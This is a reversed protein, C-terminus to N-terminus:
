VKRKQQSEGVLKALDIIDTDDAYKGNILAKLKALHETKDADSTSALLEKFLEKNNKIITLVSDEELIETPLIGKLAGQKNKLNGYMFLLDGFYVFRKLDMSSSQIFINRVEYVIQDINYGVSALAGLIEDVVDKKIPTYSANQAYEKLDKKVADVLSQYHEPHYSIYLEYNYDENKLSCGWEEQSISAMYQNVLDLLYSGLKSDVTQIDVYLEIPLQPIHEVSISNRDEYWEDICNWFESPQINSNEIIGAYCKLVPLITLKRNKGNLLLEKAILRLTDNYSYSKLQQLIEGFTTYRQIKLAIDIVRKDDMSSILKMYSYSNNTYEYNSFRSIVMALLENYFDSDTDSVNSIITHLESDPLYTNIDIPAEEIEHLRKILYMVKSVDNSNESISQRIRKSYNPLEYGNLIYPIISLEKYKELELGQLYSDLESANCILGYNYYLEKTDSVLEVFIEPTIEKHTRHLYQYVNAGNIKALEDVGNTYGKINASSDLHTFYSNVLRQVMDNKKSIHALLIAHYDEYHSIGSMQSVFKNYLSDWTRNINSDTCDEKLLADLAKVANPINTVSVISHDLITWFKPTGKLQPLTQLANNDLEQTVTRVFVVDMANQVPLQYYLSSLCQKMRNDGKYIFDLSGLFSPELIEKIPDTGIIEKGFIFLAIYRDEIENDAIEKITVFENIFAIIKRPTHEKTLMDYIQLIAEDLEVDPGFAEHWMHKFYDKWGSLIPPAVRYVIQFTKNIFDNGYVINQTTCVGNDKNAYIDESQFACKIHERDFPIIIRINSLDIDTFISHITAWLEQVKAKPLRDMNDIVIVLHENKLEESIQTMWRRFSRSTPEKDVLTEYKTNEKVKGSYVYFIETFFKGWSFEQSYKHKMDFYHCFLAFGIILLYPLFALLRWPSNDINQYLVNVIPSVLLCCLSAIIGAGLAPVTKTSTEKKKALLNNLAKKWLTSDGFPKGKSTLFEIMEELITRRPLDNQHAWADYTFFHYKNEDTIDKNLKSEIMGVLNSKGSGWGGDIGILGRYNDNKIHKAIVEALHEHSKGEFLDANCPKNKILKAM